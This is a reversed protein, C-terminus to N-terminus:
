FIESMDFEPVAVRPQPQILDSRDVDKVKSFWRADGIPMNALTRPPYYHNEYFFLGEAQRFTMGNKSNKARWYYSNWLEQTDRNMKVRRPKFIDGTMEVLTGDRQIVMRSKRTHRYGCKPCTDGHSRVMGCKPCNIPEPEKKQRIREARVETAYHEPAAWYEQWDRDQNPSGHRYWNGGHDAIVVHDHEPHFRLVRGVSQIYSVTSGIPVALILNYLWPLDVGERLVFRNCIGKIEGSKSMQIVRDRMERNSKYFEGDLWVDEGDIHAWRHGADAFRECFGISEEVGPAFLLAPKQEPNLIKWWKMVSGFIAWTWVEKVQGKTFEIGTKVKEIKRTDLSECCYVQAPLLAGCERGETNNAGIILEEALDSIGIPTATVLVVFAGQEKHHQLIKRIVGGSCMHIEDVIVLKAKHLQWRVKRFCRADETQPSSIQIDEELRCQDKFEASRIGYPIEHEMFNRALQETLMKRPTYIVVPGLEKVAWETLQVIVDSKGSGTVSTFCM